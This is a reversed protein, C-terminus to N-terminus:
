YCLQWGGRTSSLLVQFNVQQKAMEELTLKDTNNLLKADLGLVTWYSKISMKM